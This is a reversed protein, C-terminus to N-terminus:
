LVDNDAITSILAKSVPFQKEFINSIMTKDDNECLEAFQHERAKSGFVWFVMLNCKLRYHRHHLKHDLVERYQQVSRQLSKRAARSRVPETGRDVELAYARYGDEYKIAFLQDPIVTGKDLPMGLPVDRINLIRSAPIYELGARTAGIEIASSSDSTLVRPVSKLIQILSSKQNM